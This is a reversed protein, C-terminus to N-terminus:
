LVLTTAFYISSPSRGMELRTYICTLVSCTCVPTLVTFTCPLFLTWDPLHVLTLVDPLSSPALLVLLLCLRITRTVYPRLSTRSFSLDVCSSILLFCLRSLTLMVFFLRPPGGHSMCTYYADRSVPVPVYLYATGTVHHPFM